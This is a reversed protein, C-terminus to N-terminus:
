RRATHPALSPSHPWRLPGPLEGGAPQEQRRGEKSRRPGKEERQNRQSGSRGPGERADFQTLELTAPDRDPDPEPTATRQWRMSMMREGRGRRGLEAGGAPSGTARRRRLSLLVSSCDRVFVSRVPVAIKAALKDLRVFLEICHFPNLKKLPSRDLLAVYVRAAQREEPSQTSEVPSAPDPLLRLCPTFCM